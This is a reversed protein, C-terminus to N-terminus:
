TKQEIGQKIWTKKSNQAFELGNRSRPLCLEYRWTKWTELNCKSGQSYCLWAFKKVHEVTSRLFRKCMQPQCTHFYKCDHYM